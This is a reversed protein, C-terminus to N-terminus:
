LDEGSVSPSNNQETLGKLEGDDDASMSANEKAKICFYEEMWTIFQAIASMEMVDCIQWMPTESIVQKRRESSM